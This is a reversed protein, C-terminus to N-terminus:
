TVLRVPVPFGLLKAYIPRTYNKEERCISYVSKISAQPYVRLLWRYDACRM